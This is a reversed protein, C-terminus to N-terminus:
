EGISEVMAVPFKGCCDTLQLSGTGTFIENTFVNRWTAPAGEPLQIAGSVPHERTMTEDHPQLPIIVCLWKDNLKRAFAVVHINETVGLPIYDGREFIDHNIRRYNLSKSTVFMKEAGERRHDELYAFLSMDQLGTRANIEKLTNKRSDYDVPRRNDPDVFSLDWFETGQYTDPIGPSTIRTLTQALAYRNSLRILKKVFPLFAKLFESDATLISKIFDCCAKEYQENPSTWNSYVKAERLVKVFYTQLREIFSEDAVLNEPFGGAISQYIFYEDNVTPAATGDDKIQHHEKNIEMWQTIGAIWQDPLDCLANLRLRSDEGRKTDHTATTNLSLPFNQQRAKMKRHFDSISIGISSPSDGVEDHSILANYVYFTTDEVGKATLPGTFQMLRKLFKLAEPNEGALFLEGVHQIEKELEPFSARAGNIAEGIILMEYGKLPFSEPYIRYVRFSVMLAHIVEKVPFCNKNGALGLEKFYRILNDWEGQMHKELIMSKNSRVLTKYNITEPVLEKYFTLLKHAGDRNTMLQNVHSLFEYGSTGQIPWDYPLDEREELIKEAVIYCDEGFYSRLRDVYERPDYLGDIHDIRLGHILGETYLEHIFKHYDDFVSQDEMKLCILENVTFFRRYNIETDTDKWYSLKYHQSSLVEKLKTDTGNIAALQKSIIEFGENKWRGIIEKKLSLWHPYDVKSETFSKWNLAKDDEESFIKHYASTSLPYLTDFYKIKLGDEVLVISLEKGAICDDIPQGLFPVQIKNHLEKSPHDWLVDFYNRYSSQEGRELVDMLRWNLTNFAMHNPVIDQLWFMNRDRLKKALSRFEELTGIEPNIAHSDIVDYGHMSGPVATLIPSAYITSIGLAQLYDIIGDLKKFSFDKHLQVRYTSSPIHMM